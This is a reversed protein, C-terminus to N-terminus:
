LGVSVRQARKGVTDNRKVFILDRRAEPCVKREGIERIASKEESRKRAAHLGWHGLGHSRDRRLRTRWRAEARRAEGIKQSRLTCVLQEGPIIQQTVPEKENILKGGLELPM